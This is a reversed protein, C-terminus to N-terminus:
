PVDVNEVKKPDFVLLMWSDEVHTDVM